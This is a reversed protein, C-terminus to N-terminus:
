PLLHHEEVTGLHLQQGLLDEVERTVLAEENRAFDLPLVELVAERVKEDIVNVGNATTVSDKQRGEQVRGGKESLECTNTEQRASETEAARMREHKTDLGRRV